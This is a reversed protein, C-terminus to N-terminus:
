RWHGPIWVYGRPRNDWHGAVWVARPRPAVVWHGPTSVYTRGRPAWEEGVWVHGATPRVPRVVVPGRRAPRVRVVLQASSDAVAFLIIATSVFLIRKLTKM